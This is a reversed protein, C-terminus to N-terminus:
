LSARLTACICLWLDYGDVNDYIWNSNVWFIMMGDQYSRARDELWIKKRYTLFYYITNGM